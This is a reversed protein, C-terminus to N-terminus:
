REFVKQFNQLVNSYGYGSSRSTSTYSKLVRVRFKQSNRIVRGAIGPTRPVSSRHTRTRGTGRYGPYLTCSTVYGGASSRHTRYAREVIGPVKALETGSEYGSRSIRYSEWVEVRFGCVRCFMVKFFYVDSLCCCSLCRWIM